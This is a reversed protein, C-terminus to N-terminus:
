ALCGKARPSLGTLFSALILVGIITAYEVDNLGGVSRTPTGHLGIITEAAHQRRSQWAVRRM